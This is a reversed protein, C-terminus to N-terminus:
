RQSASGLVRAAWSKVQPSTHNLLRVVLVLGGIADLDKANNIQHVYFELEELAQCLEQETSSRNALVVTLQLMEEVERHLSVPLQERPTAGGPVAQLQSPKGDSNHPTDSNEDETRSALLPLHELDVNESNMEDLMTEVEEASFVKTRKNIVGRRDSEGYHHKRRNDGTWRAPSEVEESTGQWDSSHPEVGQVEERDLLKAEKLGTQLNMRVHLGPPIHQGERVVQWESTPVFVDVQEGDELMEEEEEVTVDAQEQPDENFEQTTLIPPIVLLCLSLSM